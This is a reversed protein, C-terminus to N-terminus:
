SIPEELQKLLLKKMKDDYDKNNIIDNRAINLLKNVEKRKKSYAALNRKFIADMKAEKDSPGAKIIETFKNLFDSIGENIYEKFTIM